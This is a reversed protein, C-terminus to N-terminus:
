RCGLPTADAPERRSRDSDGRHPPPRKAQGEAKTAANGLHHTVQIASREAAAWASAESSSAIPHGQQRARLPGLQQNPRGTEREIGGVPRRGQAGAQWEQEPPV